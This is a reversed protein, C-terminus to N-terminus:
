TRPRRAFLREGCSWCWGGFPWLTFLPGVSIYGVRGSCVPCPWYAVAISAVALAVGLVLGAAAGLTFCSTIFGAFLIWWGARIWRFQQMKKSHLM